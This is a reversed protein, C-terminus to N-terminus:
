SALESVVRSLRGGTHTEAAAEEEEEVEERLHEAGVELPIGEHLFLCIDLQHEFSKM